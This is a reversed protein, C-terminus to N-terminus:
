EKEIDQFVNLDKLKSEEVAVDTKAPRDFVWFDDYGDGCFGQGMKDGSTLAKPYGKGPHGITKGGSQGFDKESASSTSLPLLTGTPLSTVPDLNLINKTKLYLVHDNIGIESAPTPKGKAVGSAALNFGWHQTLNLATASKDLLKARYIAIVQGIEGPSDLVAFAVECLVTGVHGGEGDPSTLTWVGASGTQEKEKLFAIEKASFLSAKDLNVRSL